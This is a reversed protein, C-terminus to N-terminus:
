NRRLLPLFVPLGITNSWTPTAIPANTDFVVTATNNILTGLRLGSKPKISFYVYGQGEFGNANPPLFGALANTTPALTLPDLSTLTVVLVNNNLAADARLIVGRTSRLDIDKTFPVLASGAPVVTDSITFGGLRLSALDFLNADLTDTIVVVQAPATATPVNEYGITYNLTDGPLIAHRPGSGQTGFKDNPDYASISTSLLNRVQPVRKFCDARVRRYLEVPDDKEGNPKPKRDYFDSKATAEYLGHLMEDLRAISLSMDVSFLGNHQVKALQFAIAEVDGIQGLLKAASQDNLDNNNFNSSTLLCNLQLLRQAHIRDAENFAVYGRLKDLSQQTMKIVQQVRELEGAKAAAPLVNQGNRTIPSHPVAATLIYTLNGNDNSVQVIPTFYTTAGLRELTISGGGSFSADQLTFATDLKTDTATNATGTLQLAVNKTESFVPTYVPSTLTELQLTLDGVIAAKAIVLMYDDVGPRVAPVIFTAVQRVTNPNGTPINDNLTGVLYRLDSAPVFEMGESAYLRFETPPTDVLGRNSFHIFVPFGVPGLGFHRRVSSPAMVDVVLGNLAQAQADAPASVVEFPDSTSPPNSVGSAVFTGSGAAAGDLTFTYDVGTDDAPGRYVGVIDPQGSRKLTMTMAPNAPVSYFRVTTAAVNGGRKPEFTVASVAPSHLWPDFLVKDSVPDGQGSPNSTANKPGSADGWWNRRADIVAQTDNNVGVTNGLFQNYRITPPTSIASLQIAKDNHHFTCYQVSGMGFLFLFAGFSRAGSVDCYRASLQGGENVQTWNWLSNAPTLTNSTLIIHRDPTGEMVLRGNIANSSFYGMRLTSGPTITLTHGASINFGNPFYVGAGGLADASGDITRDVDSLSAGYLGITLANTVGPSFSLNRYTPNENADWEFIPSGAVDLIQTNAISPRIGGELLTSNVGRTNLVIGDSASKEVRCNSITVGSTHIYVAAARSAPRGGGSVVCNSLRGSTGTEFIMTSWYGPAQTAANSLFQIPAQTTGEAVLTSGSGDLYINRDNNGDGIRLTTGATVTLTRGQRISAGNPLYIGAGGLAATSGDLTRDVSSLSAGYLGIKVANTVGPSFTLNRYTPNENADWEFIPSGAVDLIQTDAISPRIGGELLISNVGLTNLVIGDSASKEVRCNSITVSSTHIYVAGNGGAGGGSIMCHNLSVSAGTEFDMRYWDGAAQGVTSPVFRIPAADTGEAILSGYVVFTTGIGNTTKPLRVEVGPQITLTASPDVNIANQVIYPSGATTWTTNTIINNTISTDAHATQAGLLLSGLVACLGLVMALVMPRTAKRLSHLIHQM